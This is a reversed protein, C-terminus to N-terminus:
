FPNSTFYGAPSVDLTLTVEPNTANLPRIDYHVGEVFFYSGSFSGGELAATLAVRDSIDVGTMLDWTARGNASTPHQPRVTLAGVRTRPTKYNNKYYTAYLLTEQLATNATGGGTVLNEASWTRLGYSATAGSDTVYQGAIEASTFDIDSNNQPLSFASSYLNAADRSIVLPPSVPVVATSGSAATQDGLSWTTIGYQADTPNFRALRGHFTVKGDKNVYVNAVGPFEADAADQIVSLASARPPYVTELLKVNGSFISRLTTPWGIASLLGGYLTGDGIREQVGTTRPIAPFVINGSDITATAGSLSGDVPLETAALIAMADVLEVRVNAFTGSVYPSWQISDVYGRFLTATSGSVPHALAFAGHHLIDVVRSSNNPNFDGTEDVLEVVATGTGTKDLEFQRGRDITVSTVKYNLDYRTWTPSGVMVATSSFSLGPPIAGM